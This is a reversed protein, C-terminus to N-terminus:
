RDTETPVQPGHEAGCGNKQRSDPAIGLLHGNREGTKEDGCVPEARLGHFSQSRLVPDHRLIQPRWQQGPDLITEQKAYNDQCQTLDQGTETDSYRYKMLSDFLGTLNFAIEHLEQDSTKIQWDEKLITRLKAMTEPKLNM